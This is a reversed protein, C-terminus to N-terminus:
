DALDRRVLRHPLGTAATEFVPGVVEFGLREYFGLATVRAHAWVVRAGHRHARDCGVVVLRTGFGRPGLDPDVAMGRLQVARDADGDPQPVDLWTSIAVIEGDFEIGLHLTGDADDGDWVVVAGASGDRLVRRRLDHTEVAAIERVVGGTAVDEHRNM